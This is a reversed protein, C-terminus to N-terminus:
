PQTRVIPSTPYSARHGPEPALRVTAEYVGSAVAEALDLKDLESLALDRTDAHESLFHYPDQTREAESPM